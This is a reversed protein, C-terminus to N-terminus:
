NIKNDCNSESESLFVCTTYQASKQANQVNHSM